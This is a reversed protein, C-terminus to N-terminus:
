VDVKRRKEKKQKKSKKSDKDKSKKRKPSPDREPSGLYSVRRVHTDERHSKKSDKSKRSKKEKKDKSKKRKLPKIEYGDSADSQSNSRSIVTRLDPLKVDAMLEADEGVNIELQDSKETNNDDMDMDM